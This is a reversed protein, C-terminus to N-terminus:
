DSNSSKRIHAEHIAVDRGLQNGGEITGDLYRVGEDVVKNVGNKEGLGDGIMGLRVKSQHQFKTQNFCLGSIHRTHGESDSVCYPETFIRRTTESDPSCM